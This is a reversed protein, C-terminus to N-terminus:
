KIGELINYLDPSPTANFDGNQYKKIIDSVQRVGDESTFNNLSYLYCRDDDKDTYWIQEKRFLVKCDMLQVDHTTFLLQAKENMENNFLLIIEKTLNTHLSADIEDILIIKNNNLADIIYSALGIIKLTGVSEFEIARVRRDKHTTVIRYNDFIQDPVPIPSGNIFEGFDGFIDKTNENSFEINDLHLDAKRIFEVLLKKEDSSSNKLMNLTKSYNDRSNNDVYIVKNAFDVLSKRCKDLEKFKGEEFAHIALINQSSYELVTEMKSDIAKYKKSKRDINYVQAGDVTYSEMVYQIGLTGPEMALSYEVVQNNVLIKASMTTIVSDSFINSVVTDPVRLILNRFLRIGQLLSTKGTNNPGYVALSKLVSVDGTVKVNNRMKKTRMDAKFDLKVEKNFSKYNNIKFELLM